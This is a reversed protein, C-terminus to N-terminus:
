WQRMLNCGKDFVMLDVANSCTAVVIIGRDKILDVSFLIVVAEM